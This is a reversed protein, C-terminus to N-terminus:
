CRARELVAPGSSEWLRTPRSISLCRTKEEPASFTRSGAPRSIRLQRMSLAYGHPAIEPKLVTTEVRYVSATGFRLRDGPRLQQSHVRVENVFTGFRSDHDEVTLVAGDCLVTAHERSISPHHLRLGSSRSRGVKLGEAPIPLVDSESAHNPFGDTM